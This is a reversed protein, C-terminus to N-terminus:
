NKNISEEVLSIIKERLKSYLERKEDNLMLTYQYEKGAGGNNCHTLRYSKGNQKLIFGVNPLHMSVICSNYKGEPISKASPLDLKALIQAIEKIQERDTERSENIKKEKDEFRLKGNSSVQYIKGFQHFRGYYQSAIVEWEPIIQVNDSNSQVVIKNTPNTESTQNFTSCNFNLIILLLSFIKCFFM